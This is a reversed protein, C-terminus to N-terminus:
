VPLNIKKHSEPTRVLLDDKKVGYIAVKNLLLEGYLIILLYFNLLTSFLIISLLQHTYQTFIKKKYEFKEKKKKKSRLTYNYRFYLQILL